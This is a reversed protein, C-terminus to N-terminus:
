KELDVAKFKTPDNLDKQLNEISSNNYGSIGYAKDPAIYEYWTDTSPLYIMNARWSNVNSGNNPRTSAYYFLDLKHSTDKNVIYYPNMYLEKGSLSDTKSLLYSDIKPWTSNGIQKYLYEILTDNRINTQKIGLEKLLLEPNLFNKNVFELLSNASNKYATYDHPRHKSCYVEVIIEDNRINRDFTYSGGSGCFSDLKGLNKVVYDEIVVNKDLLAEAQYVTRLQSRQEDCKSAKADEIYNFFAPVAIAALIAIILIVVIMEILTFGQKSKKLYEGGTAM